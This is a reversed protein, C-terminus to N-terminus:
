FWDGGLRAGGFDPGLAGFGFRAFPAALAAILSAALPVISRSATPSIATSAAVSIAIALPRGFLRDSEVVIKTALRKLQIDFEALRGIGVVFRSGRLRRFALTAVLFASTAPAPAPAAAATTTGIGTTAVPRKDLTAGIDGAADLVLEVVIAVIEGLGLRARDNAFEGFEHGLDDAVDEINAGGVVLEVGVLRTLFFRGFPVFTARAAAPSAATTTPAFASAVFRARRLLATIGVVRMGGIEVVGVGDVQVAVAVFAIVLMVVVVRNVRSM